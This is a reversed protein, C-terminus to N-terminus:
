HVIKYISIVVNMAKRVNKHLRVCLVVYIADFSIHYM